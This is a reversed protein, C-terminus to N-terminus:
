KMNMPANQSIALTSYAPNDPNRTISAAYMLKKRNKKARPPPLEFALNRISEIPRSRFAGLSLRISTNYNTDVIKLHNPKASQYITAGYDM